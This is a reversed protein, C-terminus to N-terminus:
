PSYDSVQKWLLQTLGFRPDGRTRMRLLGALMIFLLATDAIFMAILNLNSSETNL